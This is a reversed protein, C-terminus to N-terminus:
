CVRHELLEKRLAVRSELEDLEKDIHSSLHAAQRGQYTNLVDEEEKLQNRLAELEQFQIGDLRVQIFVCVTPNSIQFM